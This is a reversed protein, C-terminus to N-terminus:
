RKLLWVEALRSRQRWNLHGEDAPADWTLVLKRDAIFKPDVAFEKFEGMEQGDATPLVREGDMRLLSQHYGTLRVTYNAAPDLGEYVVGIPWDLSTQWSLRARSKGNDWWWLTPEPHAEEGPETFVEESRLVHPSKAANGLDDYYSGPGPHEWTALVNLRAIKEAETPMTRIKKFEDELWWRNNMPYDVFDLFAGREEGSAHYKEVSSQLGVSQFLADSLEVIRARLDPSTPESVARNLVNMAASMSTEAHGASAHLLIENAEDELKSERLLRRRIYADYNARLLCM